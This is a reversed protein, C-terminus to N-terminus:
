GDSSWHLYDSESNGLDDVPELKVNPASVDSPRDYNDFNFEQSRADSVPMYESFEIEIESDKYRLVGAEKLMKLMSKLKKTSPASADSM